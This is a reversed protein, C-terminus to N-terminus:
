NYTINPYKLPKYSLVEPDFFRTQTYMEPQEYQPPPPQDKEKVVTESKLINPTVLRDDNERFDDTVEPQYKSLM